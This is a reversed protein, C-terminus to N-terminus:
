CVPTPDTRAKANNDPPIPLKHTHTTKANMTMSILSDNLARVLLVKLMGLHLGLPM